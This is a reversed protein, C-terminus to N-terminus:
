MDLYRGEDFDEKFDLIDYDEKFIFDEEMEDSKLHSENEVLKDFKKLLAYYETPDVGKEDKLGRLFYIDKLNKPWRLVKIDM